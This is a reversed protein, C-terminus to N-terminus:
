CVYFDGEWLTDAGTGSNGTAAKSLTLTSTNSGVTGTVGNKIFGSSDTVIGSGGFTTFTSFSNSTTALTSGDTVTSNAVAVGTPASGGSPPYNVLALDAAANDGPYPECSDALVNSGGYTEGSSNAGTLTQTGYYGSFDAVNSLLNGNWANNSFTNDYAANPDAQLGMLGVPAYAGFVLVGVGNDEDTNYSITSDYTAWGPSSSSGVGPTGYSCTGVIDCNESPGGIIMGAGLSQDELTNGDGAGGITVGNDGTLLIGAEANGTAVNSTVDVPEPSGGSQNAGDIEIGVGYGFEGASAGLSTSDTTTNGSITWPGEAADDSGDYAPVYGAYIGEDNSTITNGTLDLTGSSVADIGAPANLIGGGGTWSNDSISAQTVSGSEAGFFEISNQATADNPGDGQFTGKTVTCTTWEDNCAVGNKDYASDLPNYVVTSGSPAAYDLNGTISLTNSGAVTATLFENGDISVYSGSVFSAPISSVPVSVSSASGSPIAVSDTATQEAPPTMTVKTMTVTATDAMTSNVYIGQGQNCGFLSPGMSIGTVAVKKVLGSAAHYYIGVYDQGCGYSDAGFFPIAQSGNVTLKQINFATTGPEVDIVYYQPDNTDTDTDFNLGHSPTPPEIITSSEGAGTITVNSDSPAATVQGVYTGAAVHITGTSNAAQQAALAEQITKCAHPVSACGTTHTATTSVYWATPVQPSAASSVSATLGLIGFTMATVVLGRGAARRLFRLNM